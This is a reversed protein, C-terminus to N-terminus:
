FHVNPQNLCHKGDCVRRFYACLHPAFIALKKIDQETFDFQRILFDQQYDSLKFDAIGAPANEIYGPLKEHNLHLLLSITQFVQKFKQSTGSIAREFRVKDLYEVQKKASNIDYNM